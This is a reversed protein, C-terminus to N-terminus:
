RESWYDLRGYENFSMHLILGGYNNFWYLSERTGYATTSKTTDHPKVRCSFWHATMAQRKTMGIIPTGELVAEVEQATWEPHRAIHEQRKKLNYEQTTVCGSSMLCLLLFILGLM